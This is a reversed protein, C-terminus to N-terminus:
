VNYLCLFLVPVILLYNIWVLKKNVNSKQLKLIGAKGPNNIIIFFVSTIVFVTSAVIVVLDFHPILRMLNNQIGGDYNLTYWPSIMQDIMSDKIYRNNFMFSDGAINCILGSVNMVTLLIINTQLYETRCLIVMSILLAMILLRYHEFEVLMFYILLPLMSYYIIYQNNKEKDIETAYAFFYVLILGIVVSCATLGNVSDIGPGLIEQIMREAPGKTKSFQYLPAQWFIINYVISLSFISAIKAIIKLLNKEQLIIIAIYALFFFPKIMVGIMACLYFWKNNKKFLMIISIMFPVASLIDTQGSYGIAIYVFPSFLFLSAALRIKEQDDNLYQSLNLFLRFVFYAVLVLFLHSWVLMFPYDCIDMGFFYQLIWIPINWISWPILGAVAGSVYQVTVNHLNQASYTYFDYPRLEYTVDLINLTWATYTKLDEYCFFLLMLSMILVAICCALVQEKNIKYSLFKNKKVM